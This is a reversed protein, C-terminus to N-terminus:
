DQVPDNRGATLYAVCDSKAYLIRGGAKIYPLGRGLYRDQNLSSPKKRLVGAAEETTLYEPLEDLTTVM